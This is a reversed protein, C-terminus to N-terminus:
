KRAPSSRIVRAGEVDEVGNWCFWTEGCMVGLDVRDNFCVQIRNVILYLLPVTVVGVVSVGIFAVESKSFPEFEDQYVRSLPDELDLDDISDHDSDFSASDRLPPSRVPSTPLDTSTIIPIDTM